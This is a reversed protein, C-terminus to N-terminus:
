GVDKTNLEYKRKKQWQRNIKTNGVNRLKTRQKISRDSKEEKIKEVERM